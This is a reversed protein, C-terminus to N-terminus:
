NCAMQLLQGLHSNHDDIKSWLEKNVNAYDVYAILEGNEAYLNGTTSYFTKDDCQFITNYVMYRVPTTLNGIGEFTPLMNTRKHIENFPVNKGMDFKAVTSHNSKSEISAKLYYLEGGIMTYFRIYDESIVTLPTFKGADCVLTRRLSNITEGAAGRIYDTTLKVTSPSGWIMNQIMKGSPDYQKLAYLVGQQTVCDVVNSYFTVAGDEAVQKSEEWVRNGSRTISSPNIYFIDKKDKLREFIVWQSPLQGGKFARSSNKDAQSDARIINSSDDASQCGGPLCVISDMSAYKYPKQANKTERLVDKTVMSFMDDISVPQKIYKILAKTFPSNVGDGDLAVNGSDTAYAVFIGSSRDDLSTSSIPALGGRYAGRGKSLTKILAPNDRCADLFVVKTKSKLYNILDDVKVASLQIDTERKPIEIDTPLLYNEQNIQAGHGAYFIIAIPSKESEASFAKIEKRLTGYDADLVLKSKYGMERLTKDVDKADKATNSLTGLNEYKSNGIVLAIGPMSNEKISRINKNNPISDQKALGLKAQAIESEFKILDAEVDHGDCIGLICSIRVRTAAIYASAADLHGLRLASKALYYYALTDSHNIEAVRRALAEWALDTELKLLKSRSWGFEFSCTIRCTLTVKGAVFKEHFDQDKNESTEAGAATAAFGAIVFLVLLANRM